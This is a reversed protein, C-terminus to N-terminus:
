LMQLICDFINNFRSTVCDGATLFVKSYLVCRQNKKKNGKEERGRQRRKKKERETVRM